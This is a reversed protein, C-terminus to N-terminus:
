QVTVKKTNLCVELSESFIALLREQEDSVKSISAVISALAQMVPVVDIPDDIEAQKQIPEYLAHSWELVNM